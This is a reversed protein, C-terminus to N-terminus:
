EKRLYAVLYLGWRLTSMHGECYKITLLAPSSLQGRAQCYGLEMMSYCRVMIDPDRGTSSSREVSAVRATDHSMVLAPGM